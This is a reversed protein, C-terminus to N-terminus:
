FPLDSLGEPDDDYPDPAVFTEKMAKERMRSESPSEGGVTQTDDRQIDAHRIYIAKAITKHWDGIKKGSLAFTIEVLDGIAFDTITVGKGLEFQPLETYETGKYSRKVELIVSPFEFTQGINKGKTATISRVPKEYITGEIKYLNNKEVM